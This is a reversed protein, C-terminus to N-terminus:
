PEARGPTRRAQVEFGFRNAASDALNLPLLHRMGAARRALAGVLPFHEKGVVKSISQVSLKIKTVVDRGIEPPISVFFSGGAADQVFDVLDPISLTFHSGSSSFCRSLLVARAAEGDERFLDISDGRELHAVLSHTSISTLCNVFLAQALAESRSAALHNAICNSTALVADLKVSDAIRGQLYAEAVKLNKKLFYYHTYITSPHHNSRSDDELEGPLFEDKACVEIIRSEVLGLNHFLGQRLHEIGGNPGEELFTLIENNLNEMFARYIGSSFRQSEFHNAVLFELYSKHPFYYYKKAKSGLVGSRSIPEIVSGVIAERIATVTDRGSRFSAPVIEIPIDDPVFRNEKKTNLLWWAISQMFAARDDQVEQRGRLSEPPRRAPKQTERSIFSYIFTKFLEYRNLMTESSLCDEMIKTFMKLQVPRSLINDESDPLRAMLLDFNKKQEVSLKETRQSLYNALYASVEAKSFFAVEQTQLKKSRQNGEDFLSSLVKEEEKASLFSDPRGLIIVKARGSFLPKMQEFTFIFDDLDMAHRMEDFGDLVLLYQGQRNMELFLGYSFDKVNTGGESGSLASCILAILDQKSYMGGLAIRIPIRQFKGALFDKSLVSTLHLSFTTKGLGYGGYVILGTRSSNVWDMTVDFLSRSSERVRTEIFLRSADNHEFLLINNTLLAGFNMLSARFEDFTSYKVNPMRDSSLNPSGSLTSRGIIWLHDIERTNLSPAYLNYITALDESTLRKRWDKAEIAITRPFIANTDDVFLVDATTATLRKEVAVCQFKIRLLSAISDRLAEGALEAM